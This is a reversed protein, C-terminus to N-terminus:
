FLNNQKFLYHVMCGSTIAKLYSTLEIILHSNGFSNGTPLIASNKLFDMTIPRKMDWFVTLMVEKISQFLKKIPSDTHKVYVDYNLLSKAEIHCLAM